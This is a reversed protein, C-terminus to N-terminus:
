VINGDIRHHHSAPLPLVVLNAAFLGVTISLAIIFMEFGFQVGVVVDDGILATVGRVGITGPVLM